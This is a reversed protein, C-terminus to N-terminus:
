FDDPYLSDFWAPAAAEAPESPTYEPVLTMLHGVV